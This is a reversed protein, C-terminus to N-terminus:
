PKTTGQYLYETLKQEIRQPHTDAVYSISFHDCLSSTSTPSLFKYEFYASEFPALNGLELCQISPDFSLSGRQRIVAEEFIPLQDSQITLRVDHIFNESTNTIKICNNILGPQTIDQPHTSESISIIHNM